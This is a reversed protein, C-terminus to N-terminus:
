PVGTVGLRDIDSRPYAMLDYTARDDAKWAAPREAAQQRKAVEPRVLSGSLNDESLRVLQGCRLGRYRGAAV